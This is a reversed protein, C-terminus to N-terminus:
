SKTYNSARAIIEPRLLFNLFSYAAPANPADVPITFVDFWVQCGETPVSYALAVKNKAEEARSKAQLVDGSYGIAVCIDGNSLADIYESSHFKRVYPRVKMLLDAAAAYDKPDRSNPDKGLYNLAVAFMDESADLFYVGCDKLRAMTKPDFVVAWSDIKVGPLRKAVADTNYGIGITGRMYPVAYKAGPAFPAMHAMVAPDLNALGQLKTKDLPQIAKAAIYRPVNHNSPVVLDYGTNGQLVKTELVENSDFTDYRVKIGTEKTFQALLAPDIYDSWNDISLTGSAPANAAPKKAAPSGAALALATAVGVFRLWQRMGGSRRRLSTILRTARAEVGFSGSGM